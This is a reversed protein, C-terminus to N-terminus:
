GQRKRSWLLVVFLVVWMAVVLVFLWLGTWIEQEPLQVPISEGAPADQAKTGPTPTPEPTPTPALPLSVSFINMMENNNEDSEILKNLPDAVAKFAHMGAEATWTFTNNDTTGPNIPGFTAFAIYVDDIYYAVHVSDSISSGKNKVTVIFTMNDSESPNIPSWTITQIILDPPVPYTVTKENNNENGEAVKIHYDAVAKITHSGAKAVWSFTVNDTAGSELPGIPTSALYDDDIYYTVDSFGAKGSGQNKITVTFTIKDGEPPNAPSWTIAQIILDPPAANAFTVTKANNNEDSEVIRNGADIIAKITHAGGKASWTFTKTVLDGVYISQIFENGEVSDDVLLYFRSSGARASGQNRITVSFTVNDGALPSTPLWTISEVVLDPALTPFAITKENNTEDGEALRNLPDAVAKVTHSGAEAIWSFTINETAGSEIQGISASDLYGDDIYCAANSHDAKGIGLNKIIVIFTVNDGEVVNASSWTIAQIFLDPYLTLITVTKENNNENSEPIWEEGDAVARFTHSGAEAHWTFTKTVLGGADISQVDEYRKFFGDIYFYVRTRIAKGSGQNKITVSFTVTDGKSPKEPSWTITEIVLDPRLVALSNSIDAVKVTIETDVVLSAHGLDETLESIESCGLVFAQLLVVTVIFISKTM